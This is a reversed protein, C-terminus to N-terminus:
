SESVKDCNGQVILGSKGLVIKLDYSDFCNVHEMNLVQNGM